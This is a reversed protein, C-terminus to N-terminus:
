MLITFVAKTPPMEVGDISYKLRICINGHFIRGMGSRMNTFNVADAPFSIINGNSEASIFRGSDFYELSNVRGHLMKGTSEQRKVVPVACLQIMGKGEKIILDCPHTFSENARSINNNEMFQERYIVFPFQYNGDKFRECLITGNFNKKEKLENKVRYREDTFRIVNMFAESCYLAMYLADTRAKDIELGEYLLHNQTIDLREQYREAEKLGAQTLRPARNNSRDILGEQEMRIMARSIKYKEENLTRSIGMVTCNEKSSSLFCMMIRLQLVDSIVSM